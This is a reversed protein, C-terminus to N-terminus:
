DFRSLQSAPITSKADIADLETQLFIFEADNAFAVSDPRGCCLWSWYTKALLTEGADNLADRVFASESNVGARRPNAIQFRMADLLKNYKM